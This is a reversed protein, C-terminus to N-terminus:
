PTGKDTRSLLSPLLVGIGHSSMLLGSKLICARPPLMLEGDAGTVVIM